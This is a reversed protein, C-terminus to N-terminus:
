AEVPSGLALELIGSPKKNSHLNFGWHRMQGLIDMCVDINGHIKAEEYLIQLEKEHEENTMKHGKEFICDSQKYYLVVM